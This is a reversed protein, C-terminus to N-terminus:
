PLVGDDPRFTVRKGAPIHLSAGTRPHLVTRAARPHVTFTGIGELHLTRGTRVADALVQLFAEATTRAQDPTLGTTAALRESLARKGVRGPPVPRPITM